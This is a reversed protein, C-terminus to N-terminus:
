YYQSAQVSGKISVYLVIHFPRIEGHINKTEKYYIGDKNGLAVPAALYLEINPFPTIRLGPVVCFSDEGYRLTTFLRMNFFKDIRFLLNIAANLGEPFPSIDERKFVTEPIFFFTSGEGNYFIEGNIDFSNNFLRKIFGINFAYSVAGDSHTNVAILGESYIDTDLINTKVSLFGRTAMYDQYYAGLNFDAWRFALNLKGGFGIFDRSPNKGDVVRVRTQTLLQIGGVGIPIDFKIIYSPGSLDEKNENIVPIFDTDPVRSLLNTFGFNPSVGWGQEFKGARLFIWNYFNYDFFFDGLTILVGTDYPIAIKIVSKVRFAESIQANIDLTSRMLIGLALTYHDASEAEWPHESWGPNIAGQFEYSANIDLGRKKLNSIVQASDEQEEASTEIEPENFISDLDDADLDLLSVENAASINALFVLLLLTFLSKM